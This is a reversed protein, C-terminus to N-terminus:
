FRAEEELVGPRRDVARDPRRGRSPRPGHAILRCDVSGDRERLPSVALRQAGQQLPIARVQPHKGAHLDATPQPALEVGIVEELLRAERGDPSRGSGPCSELLFEQCPQSRDQRVHQGILDASVVPGLPAVRSEFAANSNSSSRDDSPNTREKAAGVLLGLWRTTRWSRATRSASAISRSGGRSALDNGQPVELVQAEGLDCPPHVAGEIADLIEPDPCKVLSRRSTPKRSSRSQDLRRGTSRRRPPDTASPPRGPPRGRPRVSRAGRRGRPTGSRARRPRRGTPRTGRRGPDSGTPPRLASAPVQRPFRGCRRQFM